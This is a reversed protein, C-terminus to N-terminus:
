GFFDAVHDKEASGLGALGRQRFGHEELALDDVPSAGHLLLVGYGVIVLELLDVLSRNVRSRQIRFEHACLDIEDVSGAGVVEHAPCIGCEGHAVAAHKHEVCLVADLDAGVIEQAKRRLMLYGKYYGDVLEIGLFGVPLSYLMRDALSEARLDHIDLEGHIGAGAEVPEHIGKHVLVIM